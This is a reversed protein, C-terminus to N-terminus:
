ISHDILHGILKDLSRAIQMTAESPIQRLVEGNDRDIVKVVTEGSSADVEFHLTTSLVKLAQNIEHVADAAQTPRVPAAAADVPQDATVKRDAAAPAAQTQSRSRILALVEDQLKQRNAQQVGNIQM